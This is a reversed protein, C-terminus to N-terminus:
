GSLVRSIGYDDAHGNERYYIVFNRVAVLESDLCFRVCSGFPLKHLSHLTYASASNRLIVDHWPMHEQRYHTRIFYIKM